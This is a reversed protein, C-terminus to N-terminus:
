ESLDEKLLREQKNLENENQIPWLTDAFTANNEDSDQSQLLSNISSLKDMINKTTTQLSDINYSVSKLQYKLGIIAKNMMKLQDDANECIHKKNM